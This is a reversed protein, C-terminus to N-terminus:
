IEFTEEKLVEQKNLRANVNVSLFEKKHGINQSSLCTLHKLDDAPDAEALYVSLCVGHPRFLM